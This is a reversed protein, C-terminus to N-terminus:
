KIPAFAPLCNPENGFPAFVQKSGREAILWAKYTHAKEVPPYAGPGPVAVPNSDVFGEWRISIRAGPKLGCQSKQVGLVRATVEVKYRRFTLSSALPRLTKRVSVVELDVIEPAIDPSPLGPPPPPLAPAEHCRALALVALSACLALQTTKM